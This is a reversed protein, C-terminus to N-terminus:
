TTVPDADNRTMLQAPAASTDSWLLLLKTGISILRGGGLQNPLSALTQPGQFSTGGDASVWVRLLDGVCSSAGPRSCDSQRLFAQIWLRGASDRALEARHYAQGAGPAAIRSRPGPVWDNVGDFRWWQFYVARDPDWASAPMTGSTSDYSYVAAIDNGVVVLDATLHLTAPQRSPDYGAPDPRAVIDAYHSWTTGGDDSRYWLLGEEFSTLGENQVALLYVPAHNPPQLRVMHRQAPTSLAATTGVVDVLASAAVAAKGSAPRSAGSPGDVGCGGGLVFLGTLGWWWSRM